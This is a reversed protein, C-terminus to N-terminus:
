PGDVFSNLELSVSRIYGSKTEQSESLTSLHHPSSASSPSM